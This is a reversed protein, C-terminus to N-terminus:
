KQERKYYSLGFPNAGSQISASPTITGEGTLNYVSVANVSINSHTVFMKDGKSNVVINHPTVGSSEVPNQLQEGTASNISYLQNGSINSVFVANMDPAAFIGHAGVYDKESIINMTNPDLIYVQGSQCPVFLKNSSLHYLHPEKGVSAEGTKAYTSTSFKYVMDSATNETFVSVYATLGDETVFVDHPKADIDITITIANTSLDIVSITNDIDNVVWLEKGQGDTWMHFIGDGADISKEVQYSQPNIVHIKKGARDGVYIKDTKPVYVVYMPESNPISLTKALMNSKADIFSISGAGRNAVVVKEEIPISPNDIMPSNDSCSTVTLCSLLAATLTM